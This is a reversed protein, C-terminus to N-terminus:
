HFRYITAEHIREYAGMDVIGYRIRVRGDLDVANTMWSQNIGRNVCPSNNALRYNGAAYNAFAADNSICGSVTMLVSFNTPSTCLNSFSVGATPTGSINWNVLTSGNYNSVAICNALMAGVAGAGGYHFLGVQPGVNNVITCNRIIGGNYWCLGSGTNGGKNNVILCNQIVSPVGNWDGYYICVGGGRSSSTNSIIISNLLTGAYNLNVGGGFGGGGGVPVYASNSAVVCNAAVSMFAICMGGGGSYDTISNTINVVNWAMTCNTVM